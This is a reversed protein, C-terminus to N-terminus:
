NIITGRIVINDIRINRLEQTSQNLLEQLKESPFASIPIDSIEGTQTNHFHHHPDTRSDFFQKGDHVFVERAIGKEVFTRLTNYITARSFTYGLSKAEEYLMDATCHQHKSLFLRGLIMRQVTQSINAQILKDKM